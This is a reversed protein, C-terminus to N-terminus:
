GGLSALPFYRTTIMSGWLMAVWGAGALYPGFPIPLHRDRGCGIILTLSIIAGIASALLLILPLSQWGLWAGLAAFLKFDGYGMGEKGTVLRFGHYVSWLILYGAVAGSVASALDTFLGFLNALLGLWILPLTIVDPLIQRDFDIFSLAILAWTLGLALLSGWGFGLRQVVIASLVATLIEILPYRWAISSKCESCRGRLLLFSLVPINEWASIQHGCHPCRSRPLFLGPVERLEESQEINLLERCQSSWQADLMQPLRHIVVNLFSGVCLGFLGAILSLYASNTELVALYDM